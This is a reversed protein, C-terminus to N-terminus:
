RSRARSRAPEAVLEVYPEGGLDHDVRREVLRWPGGAHDFRDGVEPPKGATDTFHGGDREGFEDRYTLRYRASRAVV